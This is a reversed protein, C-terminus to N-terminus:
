EEQPDKKTSPLTAVSQKIRELLAKKQDTPLASNDVATSLNRLFGAYKMRKMAVDKLNKSFDAQTWNALEEFSATAAPNTTEFQTSASHPDNWPCVSQCIDCGAVWTGSKKQVGIPVEGRNEITHYAICKKSDVFYRERGDELPLKVIAETPCAEICKRCTGCHETYPKNEALVADTFFGGLFFYSGHQRHILCTNKGVWGLGARSAWFREFVPEADTFTRTSPKPLDGEASVIAEFASTLQALKEKVLLHYDRGRTYNSILPRSSDFTDEKGTGYLLGVCVISKANELFTQPNKKTDAHKQLYSMDAGFGHGLWTYYNQSAVMLLPDHASAVGFLDFGLDTAARELARALTHPTRNEM